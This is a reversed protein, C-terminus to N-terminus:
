ANSVIILVFRRPVLLLVVRWQRMQSRLDRQLQDNFAQMAMEDVGELQDEPLSLVVAQDFHMRYQLASEITNAMNITAPM